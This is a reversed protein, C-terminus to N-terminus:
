ISTRYIIFLNFAVQRRFSHCTGNVFSSCFLAVCYYIKILQFFPIKKIRNLFCSTICNRLCSEIELRLRALRTYAGLLPLNNLRFVRKAPGVLRASLM